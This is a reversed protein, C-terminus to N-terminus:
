DDGISDIAILASETLGILMVGARLNAKFRGAATAATPLAHCGLRFRLFRQM